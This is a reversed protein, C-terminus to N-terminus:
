KVAVQRPIYDLLTKEADANFGKVKDYVTSAESLNIDGTDAISKKLGELTGKLQEGGLDPLGYDKLTSLNAKASALNRSIDELGYAKAGMRNVLGLHGVTQGVEQSVTPLLKSALERSAAVMSEDALGKVPSVLAHLLAMSALINKVSAEKIEESGEKNNTANLAVRPVKPAARFIDPGYIRYLALAVDDALHAVPKMVEYLEAAVALKFLNGPNDM